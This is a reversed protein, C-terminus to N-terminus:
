HPTVANIRQSCTNEENDEHEEHHSQIQRVYEPCRSLENQVSYALELTRFNLLALTILVTFDWVKFANQIGCDRSVSGSCLIVPSQGVDLSKLSDNFV